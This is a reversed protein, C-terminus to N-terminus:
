LQDFDNEAYVHDQNYLIDDDENLFRKNNFYTNQNFNYYYENNFNLMNEQNLRQVIRNQTKNKYLYLIAVVPLIFLICSIAIIVIKYTNNYIKNKNESCFYDVCYTYNLTPIDYNSILELDKYRLYNLSTINKNVIDKNSSNYTLSNNNEWFTMYDVDCQDIIWECSSVSYNNNLIFVLDNTSVTNLLTILFFLYLYKM